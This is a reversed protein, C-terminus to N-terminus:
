IVALLVIYVKLICISMVFLLKWKYRMLFVQYPFVNYRDRYVIGFIEM